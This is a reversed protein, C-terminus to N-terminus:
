HQVEPASMDIDLRFLDQSSNLILFSGVGGTGSLTISLNAQAADPTSAPPAPTPAPNFGGRSAARHEAPPPPPRGAPSASPPGPGTTPVAGPDTPMPTGSQARPRPM